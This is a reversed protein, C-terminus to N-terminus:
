EGKTCLEWSQFPAETDNEIVLGVANKAYTIFSRLFYNKGKFNVVSVTMTLGEAVEVTKETLTAKGRIRLNFVDKDHGYNQRKNIRVVQFVKTTETSNM